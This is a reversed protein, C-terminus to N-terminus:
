PKKLRDLAAPLEDFRDILLDAGLQDPPGHAYGYGVVIVPVGAAHACAVDNANDGIMVAQDTASGLQKIVRLLPAPDPKRTPLSDGGVVADFHAAIGLGRLVALTAGHPKNTCVGLRHGNRILGQLVEPVAPFPRTLVTANAEYDSRFRDVLAPLSRGPVDGTAALGREVLKAIGDGIMTKVEALTVARRGEAVLLRNLAATLDPASDVLTGDLDFVLARLPISM